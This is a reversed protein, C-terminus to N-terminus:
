HRTPRSAPIAAAILIAAALLCCLLAAAMYVARLSALWLTLPAIALPSLFQGLFFTSSFGGFVRGRVAEPAIRMLWSTTNPVLLGFGLGSAAVGVATAAYSGAVSVLAFGAGVLFMALAYSSAVTLRAAIRPYAFSAGAATVTAGSVAVGIAVPSSQYARDLLFPLQAPVMYFLLMCLLGMAYAMLVRGLPTPAHPVAADPDHGRPAPEYLVRWAYPLLALAAVYGLFPGRWSWAALAGGLNLFIVGGLSMFSGQLGLLRARRNHEFYDGILALTVSLLGAVAVGLLARSALLVAIHDILAGSCGALGYLVLSALLVRKRGIRDAVYGVAPSCVAIVLAPMTLVLKVLVESSEAFHAGIGPLAPAVMAGSMATMTSAILM